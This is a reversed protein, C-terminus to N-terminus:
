QCRQARRVRGHRVKKRLRWGQRRIEWEKGTQRLSKQHGREGGGRPSIVLDTRLRFPPGVIRLSHILGFM